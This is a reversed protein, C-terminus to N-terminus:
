IHCDVLVATSEKYKKFIAAAEKEWADADKEDSAVGWWGMKGSQIWEGEPTVIAFPTFGNIQQVPQIDGEYKAWQTPWKQRIGTGDCGNCGNCAKMQDPNSDKRQGTGNCLHCTEKNKPDDEPKYGTLSGSWRGGIQYWDWHSDVNYTSIRYLKGDEIGGDVGDWSGMLPVLEEITEKKYHEKMSKIEDDDLYEKRPEAKLGENYPALVEEVSLEVDQSQEKDLLVLVSFHSM